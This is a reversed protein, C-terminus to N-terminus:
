QSKLLTFGMSKGASKDFTITHTCGANLGIQAMLSDSFDLQAQTFQRLAQWALSQSEIVLENSEFLTGLIEILRPKKTAYLDELVWVLECLVILSIFGPQQKSLAAFARNAMASQARDDQAFFRVLVNTDIGIM